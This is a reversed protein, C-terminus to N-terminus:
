PKCEILQTTEQLRTALLEPELIHEDTGELYGIGNSSLFVKALDGRVAFNVNQAIDGGTREAVVLVDLKSVVVDVVNGYRDIVPGGSNGPQVPASIQINTEDGRLGKLSSVSGRGVNLGGLMGYLPYGAITIDANLGVSTRAFRLPEIGAGQPSSIAALDFTSSTALLKSPQGNVRISECGDVVHANTLLVGDSNIVFGTGTSGASEEVSPTVPKQNVGTEGKVTEPNDQIIQAVLKINRYLAGGSTPLITPSSALSISSSMMKVMAENERSAAFVLTSWSGELLDSRAYMVSDVSKIATVWRDSRRLTYPQEIQDFRDLVYRHTEVLRTKDLDNAIVSITEDPSSWVQFLGERKTLDLWKMPMMVYVGLAKVPGQTWGDEDFRILGRLALFAADVNLPERQFERLSYTELASQSRSGWAGDLFGDYDGSLALSAQLFRKDTVTLPRADFADWLGVSPASPTNAIRWDVERRYQAGTSCYSDAPISGQAVYSRITPVSTQENVVEVTIAFWGNDSHFVRASNEFNHTQIWDRAESLTARSAAVIACNNPGFFTDAHASSAPLGAVISSVIISGFTRIMILGYDKAEGEFLCM